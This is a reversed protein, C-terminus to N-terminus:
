IEIITMDDVIEAGPYKQRIAEVWRQRGAAGKWDTPVKFVSWEGRNYTQGPVRAWVSRKSKSEKLLLNNEALEQTLSDLRRKYTGGGWEPPFEEPPLADVAALLKRELEKVQWSNNLFWIHDEGGCGNNKCAAVKVGDVYLDAYYQNTEESCRPDAKFNKFTLKM